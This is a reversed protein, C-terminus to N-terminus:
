SSRHSRVSGYGHCLLHDTATPERVALYDRLVAVLKIGSEQRVNVYAVLDARQLQDLQQWHRDTVQWRSIRCLTSFHFHTQAKARHSQWRAIRRITYKRLERQLWAPSDAALHM